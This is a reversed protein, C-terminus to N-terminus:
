PKLLAQLAAKHPGNAMIYATRGRIDTASKDAGKTLLLRVIDLRGNFSALALATVGDDPRTISASSWGTGDYYQTWVDSTSALLGVYDNM